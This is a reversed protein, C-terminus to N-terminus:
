RAARRPAARRALWRALSVPAIDLRAAATSVNRSARLAVRRLTAKEIQDVSGSAHALVWARDAATFCDTPALLEAVADLAYEDVIKPLENARARLAPVVIPAPVILLPNSDNREGWCVVTHVHAAPDRVRAIVSAFDRPLRRARLCITGGAAADIAETGTARNAPSRVTAAMNGRRPDCVIFPANPGLTRRHLAAAIPVLDGEGCLVLAAHGSAALQLSREARDVAIARDDSWGLIRALFPRLALDATM